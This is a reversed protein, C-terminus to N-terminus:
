RVPPALPEASVAVPTAASPPPALDIDRLGHGPPAETAPVSLTAPAPQNAPAPAPSQKQTRNEISRIAVKVGDAIGMPVSCGGVLLGAALVVTFGALFRM